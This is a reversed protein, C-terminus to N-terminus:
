IKCLKWLNLTENSWEIRITSLSYPVKAKIHGNVNQKCSGLFLPIKLVMSLPFLRVVSSMTWLIMSFLDPVTMKMQKKYREKFIM